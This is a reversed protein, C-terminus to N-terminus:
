HAERYKKRMALAHWETRVARQTGTPKGLAAHRGGSQESARNKRNKFLERAQWGVNKNEGSIFASSMYTSIETIAWSHGHYDGLAAVFKEWWTALAVSSGPAKAPTSNMAVWSESSGRTRARQVQTRLRRGFRTDTKNIMCAAARVPKERMLLIALGEFAKTFANILSERPPAHVPQGKMKLSQPRLLRCIIDCRHGDTNLSRSCISTRLLAARGSESATLTAM